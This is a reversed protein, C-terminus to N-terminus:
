AFRRGHSYFESAVQFFEAGKEGLHFRQALVDVVLRGFESAGPADVRVLRLDGGPNEIKGMIDRQALVVEGVQLVPERRPAQGREAAALAVDSSASSVSM